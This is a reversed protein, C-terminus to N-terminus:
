VGELMFDYVYLCVIMCMCDCVYMCLNTCGYACHVNCWALVRVYMHWACAHLWHLAGNMNDHALM